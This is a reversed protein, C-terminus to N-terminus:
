RPMCVYSILAYLFMHWTDHCVCVCVLYWLMCPCMDFWVCYSILFWIMCVVYWYWLNLDYVALGAMQMRERIKVNSAICTHVVLVIRCERTMWTFNLSNSHTFSRIGGTSIAYESFTVTFFSKAPRQHYKEHTECHKEVIRSNWRFMCQILQM